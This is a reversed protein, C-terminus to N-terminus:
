NLVGQYAMRPSGDLIYITGCHTFGLSTLLRQMPLNDRHTDIKLNGSRELAWKICAKGVKKGRAKESVGIRHLVAYPLTNLWEGDEIVRYTPDDANEEFYFACLINEGECAVYGHGNESVDAEIIERPPYSNKWQESNGSARMFARAEAYIECIKELDSPLARRIELNTISETM